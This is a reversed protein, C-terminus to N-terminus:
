FPGYDILVAITLLVVSMGILLSVLPIVFRFWKNFPVKGMGLMILLVGATPYIINTLGDGLQFALVAIQRNLGVIDSLPVMIPMTAAAQGSGSVIFFNIACHAALMAYASIMVPLNSLPISIAHIVTHIIGAQDLVATIGYAFGIVCLGPAFGAIGNLFAKTGDNISIKNAIMTIITVGIFLAAMETFFWGWNLAGYVFLGLASIVSLISIVHGGTLSTENMKKDKHLEDEVEVNAMFSKSPDKRIKRAYRLVYILSFGVMFIMSITRFAFGSYMPLEAIGHSVGVTFPNSPGTAFGVIGGVIALSVGVIRDYGLGLAIAIALPVFPIAGEAFGLFGGLFAFFGFLVVIIIDGKKGFVKVIRSVFADFAGAYTVVQIAGGVLMGCLMMTAAFSNAFGRPIATLVDMFKIGPVETYHFSNSDVIMRGNMEVMDYSGSPIVYSLLACGVIIFFILAYPNIMERKKGVKEKLNKNNSESM